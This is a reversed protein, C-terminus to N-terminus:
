RRPPLIQPKPNEFVDLYDHYEPPVRERISPETKTPIEVVAATTKVHARSPHFNVRPPRSLGRPNCHEKCYDLAFWLTQREFNM